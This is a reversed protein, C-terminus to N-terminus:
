GARTRGWLVRFSWGVLWAPVLLGALAAPWAFMPNLRPTGGVDPAYSALVACALAVCSWAAPVALAALPRRGDRLLTYATVLVLPLVFASWAAFGDPLLLIVDRVDLRNATVRGSLVFLWLAAVLIWLVVLGNRGGVRLASAIVVTWFGAYLAREALPPGGLDLVTAALVLCLAAGLGSGVAPLLIERTTPANATRRLVVGQAPDREATTSWPGHTNM